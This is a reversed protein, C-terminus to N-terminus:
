KVQFPTAYVFSDGAVTFNLNYNGAALGKTSLNFNYGGTTGLTSDFRFDNNPNAGGSDQVPALTSTLTTTIGIAHVVLSSSSLNNGTGGLIQLKVPLTAGGQVAKTADYLINVKYLAGQVEFSGIDCATRQPRVVGRQDTSVATGSADTCNSLPVADVAASAALLAVTQTPGGNNNLGAPDLGAPTNNMDGSGSLSCTPDDSLNHGMSTVAGVCNGGGGSNNANLVNKMTIPTGPSYIGAGASAYNGWLTSFSLTMTGDNGIGGGLYGSRNGAITSNTVNTTGSGNAIGGGSDRAYNGSITSNIITVVGYANEIGGGYYDASNGSLTSNALTLSGSANLIAGQSGFNGTAVIRDLTLTGGWNLIAGGWYEGNTNGDRVTVGSITVTVGDIYLVRTQRNGSIALSSAGPGSITMNKNIYLRNTLTITGTVGFTITDGPSANAIADRLSGIGSDNTNIVTITAGFVPWVGLSALILLAFGM